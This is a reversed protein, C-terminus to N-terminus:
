VGSVDTISEKWIDHHVSFYGNKVTSTKGECDVLPLWSVARHHTYFLPKKPCYENIYHGVQWEVVQKTSDSTSPVDINM